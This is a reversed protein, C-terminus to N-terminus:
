SKMLGYEAGINEAFRKIEEEHSVFSKYDMFTLKVYIKEDKSEEADLNKPFDMQIDDFGFQEMDFGDIALEALEEELKSFDWPSENTKNDALRLAKVQEDTLDDAFVVPVKELLLEKAAMLRGHGIIVVKDRDVVIPQKWGFAKISNGIQKVQEPPHTKANGQYPTLDDPPLWVVQMQEGM